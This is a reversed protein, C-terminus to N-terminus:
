ISDEGPCLLVRCITALGYGIGTSPDVTNVTLDPVPTPTATDQPAADLTYGPPLKVPKDLKYGPPLPM